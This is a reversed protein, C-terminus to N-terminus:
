HQPFPILCNKTCSLMGTDSPQGNPDLPVGNLDGLDCQEGRDSDIISDGCYHPSSCGFSCGGKGDVKGNGSGLDCEEPGNVQGDGCFPGIKCRTTCTGYGQDTNLDGDDCQEGPSIVGDGCVSAEGADQGGDACSQYSCTGVSCDWCPEALCNSACGDGDHTNGDDCTEWGVMRGDGCTPFCGRGPVCTWGPELQCSGSCGDGSLTNGDDCEEDSTLVANGCVRADVCPPDWPHCQCNYYCDIVCQSSCGDDDETNGDDCEEGPDLKGNGCLSAAVTDVVRDVGSVDPSLSPMSDASDVAAGTVQAGDPALRSTRSCALGVIALAALGGRALRASKSM